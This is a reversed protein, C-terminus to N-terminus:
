SVVILHRKEQVVKQKRNKGQLTLLQRDKTHKPKRLNKIM